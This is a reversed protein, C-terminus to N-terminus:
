TEKIKDITIEIRTRVLMQKSRRTLTKWISLFAIKVRSTFCSIYRSIYITYIFFFRPHHSIHEDYNQPTPSRPSIFCSLLMKNPIVNGFDYWKNACLNWSFTKCMLFGWCFSFILLKRSNHVKLRFLYKWM